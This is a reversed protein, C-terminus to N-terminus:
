ARVLAADTKIQLEATSNAQAAIKAGDFAKSLLYFLLLQHEHPAVKKFVSEFAQRPNESVAPEDSGSGRRLGECVAALSEEVAVKPEKWTVRLMKCFSDWWNACTNTAETSKNGSEGAKLTCLTRRALEAACFHLVAVRDCAGLDSGDGLEGLLFQQGCEAEVQVRSALIRGFEKFGTRAACSLQEESLDKASPLVCTGEVQNIVGRVLSILPARKGAVNVLTKELAKIHKPTSVLGDFAKLLPPYHKARGVKGQAQHLVVGLASEWQVLRDVEASSDENRPPTLTQAVLERFAFHLLLDSDGRSVGQGEVMPKELFTLAYDKGHALETLLARSALRFSPPVVSVTPTFPM